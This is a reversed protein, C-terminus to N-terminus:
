DFAVASENRRVFILSLNNAPMEKVLPKAFGHAEAVEAVVALDRVGWAPNKSRLERDFAENSAATHHGDCTFPGYLYLMGGLPLVRGAGRMLGVASEWAAIHIMNICLVADARAVPWNESAADLAIAPRVNRLGLAATWADISARSSPDPDSPQFVLDPARAKALHAVHEGTGSAVELVLGQAPLHQELVALIPERNRAVSPAYRRADENM